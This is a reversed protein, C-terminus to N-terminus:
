KLFARYKKEFDEVTYVNGSKADEKGQRIGEKMHAPIIFVEEKNTLIAAVHELFQQENLDDIKEHLSKKLKVLTM